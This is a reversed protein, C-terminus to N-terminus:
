SQFGEILGLCKEKFLKIMTGELLECYSLDLHELETNSSIVAAVELSIDSIRNHSLDLFKLSKIEALSQILLKIGNYKLSCRKLQLNEICGKIIFHALDDAVQDTIHNHNLNLTRLNKDKIVTCILKLADEHLNCSELELHQLSTNKTIGISLTESAQNTINNGSLNIHCLSSNTNVADCVVLVDQEQLKCNRM